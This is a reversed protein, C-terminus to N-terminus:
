VKSMAFCGGRLLLGLNEPRIPARGTAILIQQIMLRVLSLYLVVNWLLQTMQCRSRDVEISSSCQGLRDQILQNSFHRNWMFDSHTASKFFIHFHTLLKHSYHKVGWGSAWKRTTKFPLGAIKIAIGENAYLICWKSSDQVLQYSEVMTYQTGCQSLIYM